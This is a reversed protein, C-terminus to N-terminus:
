RLSMEQRVPKIIQLGQKNLRECGYCHSLDEAYYDQFAKRTM